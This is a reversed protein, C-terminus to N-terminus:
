AANGNLWDDFGEYDVDQTDPLDESMPASDCRCNFHGPPVIADCEEGDIKGSEIGSEIESSSLGDRCECCEDTRDDIVAIWMFDKIGNAKAADNSGERVSRVFDETVEQEVEWSYRETAEYQTGDANLDYFITKDAPGRRFVDDPLTSARYDSLIEDWMDDDTFGSSMSPLSPDDNEAEKVLKLKRNTLAQTKTLKRTPPFAKTVRTVTDDINDGRVHSLQIADQIKRALRNFSLMIRDDISGGSPSDKNVHDQVKANYIQKKGLARAMAEAEGASALLYTEARLRKVIHTTQIAALWIEDKIPGSMTLRFMGLSRRSHVQTIIKEKLKKIIQDIASMHVHHIKQLAIDRQRKFDVYHQNDTFPRLKPKKKSM